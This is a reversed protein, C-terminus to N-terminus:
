KDKRKAGSKKPADKKPRGRAPPTFATVDEERLLYVGRKGKGACVVPLLGDMIWKQVTRVVWGRRQAADDVTVLGYDSLPIESIM